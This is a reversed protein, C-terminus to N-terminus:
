LRLRVQWNLPSTVVGVLKHLPPEQHPFFPSPSFKMKVAARRFAKGLYKPCTEGFKTPAPISFTFVYNTKLDHIKFLHKKGM